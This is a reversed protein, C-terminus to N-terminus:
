YFVSVCISVFLLFTIEVLTILVNSNISVKKNKYWLAGATAGGGGM